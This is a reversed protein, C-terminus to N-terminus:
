TVDLAHAEVFTGEDFGAFSAKLRAFILAHAEQIFIRRKGDVEHVIWYLAMVEGPPVPRARGTAALGILRAFPPHPSCRQCSLQPILSEISADPHRDTKRLDIEGVVGCGACYCTLWPRGARVAGGITPHFLPV